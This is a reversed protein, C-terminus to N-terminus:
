FWVDKCTGNVCDQGSCGNMNCSQFYACSVPCGSGGSYPARCDSPCGVYNESATDCVGDGCYCDGCNAVTEGRFMECWGNGCWGFYSCDFCNEQTEGDEYNCVSDGCVHGYNECVGYEGCSMPGASGDCTYSCDQSSTCVDWCDNPGASLSTGSMQYLCLVFAIYLLRRSM